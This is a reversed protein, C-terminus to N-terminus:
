EKALVKMLNRAENSIDEVVAEIWEKGKNKDGRTAGGLVANPYLYKDVIPSLISVKPMYEPSHDRAAEMDVDEEDIYLMASTEDDGAHGPMTFLRQRAEKGVDRWWDVVMFTSNTEYAAEKAATKLLSSNGGHGNIVVVLKYGNRAIEKLVSRSYSKFADDDVNITGPFRSLSVSSGYWIPPFLHAGIKKAVEEAIFQSEMADTGLPLHDGHREVSGVAIVAVGKEVKDYRSGSLKWIYEMLNVM